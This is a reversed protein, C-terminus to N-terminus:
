LNGKRLYLALTLASYILIFAIIYIYHPKIEFSKKQQVQKLFKKNTKWHKSV